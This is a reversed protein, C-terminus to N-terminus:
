NIVLKFYYIESNTKVTLLYLGRKLTETLEITASNRLESSLIFTGKMNQIEVDANVLPKTLQIIGPLSVPNPYIFIASYIPIASYIRNISEANDYILIGLDNQLDTGCILFGGNISPILSYGINTTSNGFLKRNLENGASDILMMQIRKSGSTTDYYYGTLMYSTDTVNVIDFGADSENSATIYKLWILNGSLDAKCIQIDFNASSDTSAEGIVLINNMNDIILNKCGGNNQNEMLLDWMYNGLSDTKLLWANYIGTGVQKDGSLLIDGNTAQLVADSVENMGVEGFVKEWQLIGENNTKILWFNNGSSTSDSKFGCAIIGGEVSNCLGSLSESNTLSGYRYLWQQNGSTDVALMIGDVITASANNTQGCIIFNEGNFVMRSCSENDTTGYYYTWLTNGEADLKSLFIDRGGVFNSNASGAVYISGDPLQQVANGVNMLATDGFYKVFYDPQALSAAQSILFILVMLANHKM